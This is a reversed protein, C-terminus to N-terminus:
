VVPARSPHNSFYLTRSGNITVSSYHFVIAWKDPDYVGLGDLGNSNAVDWTGTPAQSLDITTNSAIVLDGDSGDSPVSIQAWVPSVLALVGVATLFRFM